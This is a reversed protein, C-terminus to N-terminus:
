ASPAPPNLVSLLDARVAPWHHDIQEDSYRVTTLGAARLDLDKRRDRRMQAPSRHNGPGDLEVAARQEVFLADVLWGAVWEGLLPLPLGDRECLEFFQVELGSRAHALTPQHCRLLTHLKASGARGRGMAAEISPIDLWNRYDASALARRTVHDPQTAALDLFIQPLATLPLRKHWTRDFARRDHVVVGPQSQCKRPTSVHIQPPKRDILGLWWAATAHSLAAGPGAYFLADVLDGIESPAGHGVAYVGPLKPHLYGSEVWRAVSGPAVGLGEFQSWKVRGWQRDALASVRVKARSKAM